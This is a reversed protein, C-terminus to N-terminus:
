DNNGRRELTALDVETWPDQVADILRPKRYPACTENTAQRLRLWSEPRMWHIQVRWVTGSWWWSAIHQRGLDDPQNTLFAWICNRGDPDAEMWAQERVGRERAACFAKRDTVQMQRAM